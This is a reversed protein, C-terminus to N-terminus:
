RQTRRGARAAFAVTMLGALMLTVSAPEPVPTAIFGVARGNTLGVGVVQGRENIGTAFILQWDSRAAPTLLDNLNHVTGDRYLYANGQLSGGGIPQNLGGVIWGRENIDYSSLSGGAYIPEIAQVAGHSYLLVRSSGDFSETGVVDGANNIAGASVDANEHLAPM